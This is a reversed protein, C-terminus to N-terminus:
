AGAGLKRAFKQDRESRFSYNEEDSYAGTLKDLANYSYSTAYNKGLPDEVVAVLRGLADTAWHLILM